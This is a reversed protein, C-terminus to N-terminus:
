RNGTARGRWPWGSLTVRLLELEAESTEAPAIGRVPKEANFKTLGVRGAQDPVYHRLAANRALRPYAPRLLPAVSAPPPLVRVSWYWSSFLLPQYRLYAAERLTGWSLVLAPAVTLARRGTWAMRWQAARRVFLYFFVLGPLM